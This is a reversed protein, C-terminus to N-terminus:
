RYAANNKFPKQKLVLVRQALSRLLDPRFGVLNLLLEELEHFEEDM